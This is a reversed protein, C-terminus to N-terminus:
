EMAAEPQPLACVNKRQREKKNNVTDKHSLVMYPCDIGEVLCSPVIHSGLSRGLSDLPIFVFRLGRSRIEMGPNRQPIKM